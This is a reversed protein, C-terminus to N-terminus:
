QVSKQKLFATYVLFNVSLIWLPVQKQTGIVSSPMIAVSLLPIPIRFTM